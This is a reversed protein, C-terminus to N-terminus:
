LCATLAAVEDRITALRERAAKGETAHRDPATWRDMLVEIELELLSVQVRVRDREAWDSWPRADIARQLLHAVREDKVVQAAPMKARALLDDLDPLVRDTPLGLLVDELRDCAAADLFDADDGSLGPRDATAM